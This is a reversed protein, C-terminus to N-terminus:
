TASPQGGPQWHDCVASGAPECPPHTAHSQQKGRAGNQASAAGQQRRRETGRIPAVINQKPLISTQILFPDCSKESFSYFNSIWLKNFNLTDDKMKM